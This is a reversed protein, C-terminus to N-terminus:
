VHAKRGVKYGELWKSMLICLEGMDGVGDKGFVSIEGQIHSISAKRVIERYKKEIGMDDMMADVLNVDMPTKGFHWIKNM